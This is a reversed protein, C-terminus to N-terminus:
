NHINMTKSQSRFKAHINKMHKKVTNQTIYLKEAMEQYSHNTQSLLWVEAERPTLGYQYVQTNVLNQLSQFRDEIVILQYLPKTKELHLWQTRIRFGGLKGISIESEIVATKEKLIPLYSKILSQCVPLIEKVESNSPSCDRVIQQCIRNASANAKILEGQETLILIGDILKDFIGLFLLFPLNKPLLDHNKTTFISLSKELNTTLSSM